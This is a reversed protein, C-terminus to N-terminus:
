IVQPSQFFATKLTAPVNTFFGSVGARGLGRALGEHDVTWPLVPLSARRCAAIMPRSVLSVEPHFACASIEKATQVAHRWSGFELLVALQLSKDVRRLRQLLGHDFSSVVIDATPFDGLLELMVIGARFEKVELNLRLQGAFVKLVDELAPLPEGTSGPSFWSGADLQQLQRWTNDKVAGHGDTTRDLTEDHIVVPVDDRSLHVDLELGDAGDEVAASFAAM